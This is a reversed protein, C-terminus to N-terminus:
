QGSRAEEVVAAADLLATSVRRAQAPELYIPPASAGVELLVVPATDTAQYAAITVPPWQRADAAEVDGLDLTPRAFIVEDDIQVGIAAWSPLEGTPALLSELETALEQSCLEDPETPIGGLLVRGAANVDNPPLLVALVARAATPWGGEVLAACADAWGTAYLAPVGGVRHGWAALRARRGSTVRNTEHETSDAV